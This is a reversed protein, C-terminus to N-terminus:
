FGKSRLLPSFCCFFSNVVFSSYDSVYMDAGNKQVMSGVLQCIDEEPLVKSLREFAKLLEQKGNRQSESKKLKTDM